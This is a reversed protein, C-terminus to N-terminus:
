KKDDVLKKAIGLMEIKGMISLKGFMDLLATEMDSKGKDNFFINHDGNNAVGSNNTITIKRDAFHDLPMQFYDAVKVLSAISPSSNNWKCMGNRDISIIKSLEYVSIGNEKCLQKIKDYILM